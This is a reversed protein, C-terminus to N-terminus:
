SIQVEEHRYGDMTAFRAGAQEMGAAQAIVAQAMAEVQAVMAPPMVPLQATM